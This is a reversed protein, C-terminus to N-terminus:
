LSHQDDSGQSRITHGEADGGENDIIKISLIDIEGGGGGM